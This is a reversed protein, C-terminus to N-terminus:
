IKKSRYFTGFLIAVGLVVMIIPVLPLRLKMLDRIGVVLALIGLFLTVDSIGRGQAYKAINLAILIVGIGILVSGEPLTDKPLLWIVGILILVLAWGIAFYQNRTM